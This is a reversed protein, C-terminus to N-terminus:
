PAKQTDSPEPQDPQTNAGTDAEYTFWMWFAPVAVLVVIAMGILPWRHRRKQKDIDTQPASM